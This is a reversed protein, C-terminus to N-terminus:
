RRSYAHSGHLRQDEHGSCGREKRCLRGTSRKGLDASTASQVPRSASNEAALCYKTIKGAVPTLWVKFVAQAVTGHAPPSADDAADDARAAENESDQGLPEVASEQYTTQRSGSKQAEEKTLAGIAELLQLSFYIPSM